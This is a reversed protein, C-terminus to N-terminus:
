HLGRPGVMGRILDKASESVADWYPSPFTYNGQLISLLLFDVKENWFPPYGVQFFFVSFFDFNTCNANITCFSLAKRVYQSHPITPHPQPTPRPPHPSYLSSHTPLPLPPRPPPLAHHPTPQSQPSTSPSSPPRIFLHNLPTSSPRPSTPHNSCVGSPGDRWARFNQQIYQIRAGHFIDGKSVNGLDQIKKHSM